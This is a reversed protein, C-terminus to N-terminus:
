GSVIPGGCNMVADLYAVTEVVILTPVTIVLNSGLNASM